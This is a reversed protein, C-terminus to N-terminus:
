SVDGGNVNRSTVLIGYEIIRQGSSLVYTM